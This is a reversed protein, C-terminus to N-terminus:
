APDLLGLERARRVAEDRSSSQLKRYVSSAQTKVTNPSLHLRAAVQPFSLHEPLFQLLRLEAATLHTDAPLRGAALAARAGGLWGALVDGDPVDALRRAAEELVREAAAHEGLRISARALVVRTEVEYWPAFQDLEALLRRAADLDTRVAAVAGERARVLASTAFALALMPYDAIGSREIQARAHAAESAALAWDDQEAAVLALQSLALVQLNPAGVSGRRVAERLRARAADRDGLLHLGIGDLLASLSRWPDDEALLPEVEAITACMAGLGGRALTADALALGGAIAADGAAPGGPASLRRTAAMWHEARPGCGLTLEAWAATLSAGASAAVRRPGLRDLWAILTANRGRTMHSPVVAYLLDGALDGAGAEIAHHIARDPDEGASWWWESARRHIRPAAAPETRHLDARLMEQLLPHLRYWAGRRDLPVLLTNSRRLEELVVGSDERELAFDCLPGSLRDLAAARRLFAARDPPVPLVFEERLYDVVIRDDGTFEALARRPDPAAGLALGALYLAAPWGETRRALADLDRAPLAIGLTALLSACEGKTMALEARGLETLRRRARLRGVGVAPETRSALALQAGPPMGECLAAVIALAAPAELRELEDLVLVFPATRARLAAVLRPVVAREVDPSPARLADGLDPPFPELESLRRVISEVLVTPDNHQPGVLVTYAPRRDQRVWQGLLVSKGYGSPACLVIVREPDAALRRVLRSRAVLATAEERDRVIESPANEAAAVPLASV